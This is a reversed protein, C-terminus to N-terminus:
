KKNEQKYNVAVGRASDYGPQSPIEVPEQELRFGFKEEVTEIIKQRARALNEYSTASKNILILAAKDSIQFGYLNKGKLGSQEILWGSNIKGTGDTNQWVPIGRERTEDIREAPIIINKFFSGASAEIDPDPLKARRIECVMRRINRPSFDTEHHEDIYKQLSTYFPSTLKRKKLRIVIAVIIYKDGEGHNFYTQRYNMALKAMDDLLVFRREVSDYAYVAKLVSAVDQGYAGINQVPAAGVTGPILSMAEIGSYGRETTFEVLDDWIEGANARITIEDDNEDLVEIGMIENRLIIGDYGADTGITNAGAGMVWIPLAHEDAFNLVCPIETPTKVCAEYRAQGGLRMTTLSAIPVDKRMELLGCESPANVLNDFDEGIKM